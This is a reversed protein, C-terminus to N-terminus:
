KSQGGDLRESLFEALDFVRIKARLKRAGGQLTRKCQQCTTVIYAADTELAEAVRMAAIDGSLEPNQMELNGGGGCCKSEERNFRMEILHAGSLKILERPPETICCKRGLDCPDHYTVKAEDEKFKLKGEKILRPLYETYHVVEIEKFSPVLKTYFHKFVYTCTPCSLVVTEAGKKRIEEYTHEAYELMAEEGLGAAYLPYGCCWEGSGIFGLDVGSQHLIISLSQPIKYAQPFLSSVCGTFYLVKAKDKQTAELVAQKKDGMNDFWLLRNKAPDGSINRNESLLKVVNGMNTPPGNEFAYKERLKMIIKGLPIGRPCRKECLECDTCNWYNQAESV